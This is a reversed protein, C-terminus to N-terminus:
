PDILKLGNEILSVLEPDHQKLKELQLLLEEKKDQWEEELTILEIIELRLLWDNPFSANLEDIVQVILRDKEEKEIQTERVSRIQGYITELPNL